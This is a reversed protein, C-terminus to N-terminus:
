RVASKKVPTQHAAGSIVDLWDVSKKGQPIEADPLKISAKIGEGWLRKLLAKASSQGHGEPHQKSPRDKDAYIVVDVGKPPAFNELLHANGAAWVPLKFAGMVALATEIGETVALIKSNGQAAIRMGGFLNDAGHRMMKKPAQVAAKAGDHTIYTRHITSPRGSADCMMTVIAPTTGLLKGEEYYELNPVFRIMDSDIKRYDLLGIGRSAFYMRAPRAEPDSLPVSQRWVHNLTERISETDVEAKKVVCRPAILPRYQNAGNGTLLEQIARHTTKFDWGNAWILLTYGDHKIGCSNCVGGGTEDFDKFLRFGDVGGHAPCPVHRPSREIAQGLQPALSAVISAWRGSALQKIEKVEM